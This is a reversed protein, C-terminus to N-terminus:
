KCGKSCEFSSFGVYAPAGCRCVSNYETKPPTKRVKNYTSIATGPPGGKSALIEAVTVHGKSVAELDEYRIDFRLGDRYRVLRFAAMNEYARDITYWEDRDYFQHGAYFMM